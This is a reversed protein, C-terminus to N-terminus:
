NINPDLCSLPRDISNCSTEVKIKPIDYNINPDLCQIPPSDSNCPSNVIKVKEIKPSILELDLYQLETVKNYNYYLTIGLIIAGMLFIFVGVNMYLYVWSPVDQKRYCSYYYVAILFIILGVMMIWFWLSYLVNM